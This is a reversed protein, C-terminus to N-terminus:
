LGVLKVCPILALPIKSIKGMYITVHEKTSFLCNKQFLTRGQSVECVGNKQGTGVSSDCPSCAISVGYDRFVVLINFVM